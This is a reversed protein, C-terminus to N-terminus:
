FPSSIAPSPSRNFQLGTVRAPSCMSNPLKQILPPLPPLDDKVRLRKTQFQRVPTPIGRMLASPVPGKKRDPSIITAFHARQGLTEVEAISGADAAAINGAYPTSSRLDLTGSGGDSTTFSGRMRAFEGTTLTPKANVCLDGWAHEERWEVVGTRYSGALRVTKSGTASNAHGPVDGSVFGDSSFSIQYACDRAANGERLVGKWTGSPPRRGIRAERAASDGSEM